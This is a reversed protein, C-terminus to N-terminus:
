IGRPLVTCHPSLYYDGGFRGRKGSQSGFSRQDIRIPGMNAIFAFATAGTQIVYREVMHLLQRRIPTVAKGGHCSRAVDQQRMLQSRPLANLESLTGASREAVSYWQEAADIKRRKRKVM